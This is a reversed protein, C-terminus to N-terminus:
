RGALWSVLAENVLEPREQHLFHGARAVKRLELGAPFAARDSAPPYLSPALCGDREGYLVLAPARIGRRLLAISRRAKSTRISFMARYYQLAADLAGPRGLTRHVADREDEPLSWGPSWAGWLADIAALDDKAVRSTAGPLLFGLMYRLQLLAAPRTALVEPLRQLPPVALAVLSRVREPFRAATAYAIVAGWDHGVLHARAAGLSDLWGVVDEALTCLHYDRDLPRSTAEYGRLSPAVAHYGAAALAPLQHRFSRLTDPFGHLCLVVDDGRGACLAGFQLGGATLTTRALAM